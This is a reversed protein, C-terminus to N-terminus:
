YYLLLSKNVDYGFKLSHKSIKIIELV